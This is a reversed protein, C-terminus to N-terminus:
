EHDKKNGTELEKGPTSIFDNVYNMYSKIAKDHHQSFMSLVFQKSVWPLWENGLFFSHSSWRYDNLHTVIKARLPTQHIYRILQLLYFDVEILIAKYRGQFLHGVRNLKKNIWQTYRFCLNQMIKSLHVNKVQIILHVHNDMLCFGHIECQYRAVMEQLFLYFCYKDEDTFFIKQKNNGRAIVHYFAGHYYLRPKRAM